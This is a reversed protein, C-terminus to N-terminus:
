PRRETPPNPLRSARRIDSRVSRMFSRHGPTSAAIVVRGNPLRIKYHNRHTIEIEAFPFERKLERKIKRTM